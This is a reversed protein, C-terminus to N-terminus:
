SKSLIISIISSLVFFVKDFFTFINNLFIGGGVQFKIQSKLDV